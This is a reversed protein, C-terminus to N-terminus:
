DCTDNVLTTWFLWSIKCYADLHQIRPERFLPPEHFAGHGDPGVNTRHVVFESGRKRRVFHLQQGSSAGEGHIAFDRAEIAEVVAMRWTM